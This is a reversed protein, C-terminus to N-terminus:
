KYLDELRIVNRMLIKTVTNINMMVQRYVDWKESHKMGPWDSLIIEYECRAWWRYKAKETVFEKFEEPTSPKTEAETYEKVLYPMVDYPEFTGKNFNNVIVYFSRMM